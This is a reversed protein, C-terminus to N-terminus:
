PISGADDGVCAGNDYSFVYSINGDAKIIADTRTNTLLPYFVPQESPVAQGSTWSKPLHKLIDVLFNLGKTSGTICVIAITIVAVIISVVIATSIDHTFFLILGIVVIITLAAVIVIYLTINRKDNVDDLPKQTDDNLIDFLVDRVEYPLDSFSKDEIIRAVKGKITIDDKNITMAILVNRVEEPLEKFQNSKAINAIRKALM